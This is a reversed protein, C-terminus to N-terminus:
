TVSIKLQNVAFSLTIGASLHLHGALRGTILVPGLGFMGYIFEHLQFDTVKQAGKFFMPFTIQQRNVVSDKYLDIDWGGNYITETAPLYLNDRGYHGVSIQITKLKGTLLDRM